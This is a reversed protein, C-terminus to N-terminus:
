RRTAFLCFAISPLYPRWCQRWSGESRGMTVVGMSAGLGLRAQYGLLGKGGDVRAKAKADAKRRGGQARTARRGGMMLLEGANM